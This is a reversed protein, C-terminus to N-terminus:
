QFTKLILILTHIMLFVGTENVDLLDLITEPIKTKFNNKYVYQCKALWVYYEAERFVSNVGLAGSYNNSLKLIRQKANRIEDASQSTEFDIM